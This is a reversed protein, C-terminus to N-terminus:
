MFLLYFRRCFAAKASAVVSELFMLFSLFFRVSIFMWHEIVSLLSTPIARDMLKIFLGFHNLKDFAKKLDLACLNVTSGACAYKNFVSNVTYLAQSCGLGRKFGFQNDSLTFLMKYRSLVCKEFVKSIVQSVSIGRFDDVTIPLTVIATKLYRCLILLVLTKLFLVLIWLLILLRSLLLCIAPHSYQLHEASLGDLGPAKGQKISSIVSEVLGADFEFNTSICTGVYSGRRSIYKDFLAQNGAETLSCGIRKFYEVFKDIIEETNSTGDILFDQRKEREFKSRWCKWFAPGNKNLLAEHLDNTYVAKEQREYERM